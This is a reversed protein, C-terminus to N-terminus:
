LYKQLLNRVHAFDEISITDFKRLLRRNSIVRVQTLAVWVPRSGLEVECHFRNDKRKGTIPLIVLTERSYVRLVLVPREYGENKGDIESGINVGLSCWWVERPHVFTDGKTRHLKQKM